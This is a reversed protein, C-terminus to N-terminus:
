QVVQFTHSAVDHFLVELNKPCVRIRCVSALKKISPTGSRHAALDFRHLLDGARQSLFSVKDEIPKHRFARDGGPNDFTEVVFQFQNEPVYPFEDGSQVDGWFDSEFSNLFESQSRTYTFDIPMTINGFNVLYGAKMEIGYVKVEGANYQDGINEDDCNQSATCNGHMNDYDSLFLIIIPDNLRSTDKRM